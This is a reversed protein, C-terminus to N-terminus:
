PRWVCTVVSKGPVTALFHRAGTSVVIPKALGTTNALVLV